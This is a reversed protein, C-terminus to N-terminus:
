PSAWRNKATAVFRECLFLAAIMLAFWDSIHTPLEPWALQAKLPTHLSAVSQTPASLPGSLASQLRDAFDADLLAPMAQPTLAQQWQWVRGKGLVSHKLLADGNASRWSYESWTHNSNKSNSIISENSVLVSGGLRIWQLVNEPLEGDALWVLVTDQNPLASQSVASDLAVRQAEPLQSQWAAHSARFFRLNQKHAADYRLALKIPALKENSVIRPMKGPVIRWDVVRSLQVREADLGSLLSPALVTIRTNKPLRADLERLLSSIPLVTTNPIQDLEPFGPALWHWHVNKGEPLDKEAQYQAGPVVVIWHEAAPSKLWVPQALFLAVAILLLIRLALLLREQLLLKRRPRLNARLWRLAAFDTLKQESRRSLHILLPLAIAAIAVLAAPWLFSLNM